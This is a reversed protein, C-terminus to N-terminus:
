WEIKVVVQIINIVCDLEVVTQAHDPTTCYGVTVCCRGGCGLYRGCGIGYFKDVPIGVMMSIEHNTFHDVNEIDM